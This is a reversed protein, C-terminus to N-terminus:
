LSSVDVLPVVQRVADVPAKVGASTPLNLLGVSADSLLAPTRYM